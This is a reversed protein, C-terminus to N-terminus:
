NNTKEYIGRVMNFSNRGELGLKSLKKGHVLKLSFNLIEDSLIINAIPKKM